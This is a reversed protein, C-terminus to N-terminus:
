HFAPSDIASPGNSNRNRHRADTAIAALIGTEKCFRMHAPSEVTMVGQGQAQQNLLAIHAMAGCRTVGSLIKRCVDVLLVYGSGDGESVGVTELQRRSM